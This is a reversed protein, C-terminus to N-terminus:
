QKITSDVPTGKSIQANWKELELSFHVLNENSNYAKKWNEWISEDRKGDKDPIGNQKINGLEEWSRMVAHYGRIEDTDRNRGNHKKVNFYDDRHGDPVPAHGELLEYICWRRHEAEYLPEERKKNDDTRSDINSNFAEIWEKKCKGHIAVAMSSRRYRELGTCFNIFENEPITVTDAILSNNIQEFNKKDALSYFTNYRLASFWLWDSKWVSDSMNGFIEVKCKRNHREPVSEQSQNNKLYYNMLNGEAGEDNMDPMGKLAAHKDSSILAAMTDNWIVTRIQPCGWAEEKRLYYRRLRISLQYDLDDDGSCVFIMHIPDEATDIKSFLAETELNMNGWTRLVAPHNNEGFITNQDSEFNPCHNLIRARLVDDPMIDAVTVEATMGPLQCYWLCIRALESGILGGGLILVRIKGVNSNILTKMLEPSIMPNQYFEAFLARSSEAVSEIGKNRLKQAHLDLTFKQNQRDVEIKVIAPKADEKKPKAPPSAKCRKLHKKRLEELKKGIAKAPQIILLGLINAAKVADEDNLEDIEMESKRETSVCRICCQNNFKDRLSKAQQIKNNEDDGILYFTINNKCGIWMFHLRDISRHLVIPNLANLSSLTQNETEKDACFAILPKLFVGDSGKALAEAYRISRDNLDSFIYVKRTRFFALKMMFAPIRFFSLAVTLTLLPALIILVSIYTRDGVTLTSFSGVAEWIEQFSNELTFVRWAYHVSQFLVQAGNEHSLDSSVQVWPWILFCLGTMVPLITLRLYVAPNADLESIECYCKYVGSIAISWYVLGLMHLFVSQTMPTQMNPFILCGMAAILLLVSGKIWSVASRSRDKRCLLSLKFILFIMMGIVGIWYFVIFGQGM